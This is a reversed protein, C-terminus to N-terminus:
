IQVVEKQWDRYDRSDEIMIRQQVRVIERYRNDTDLEIKSIQSDLERKCEIRM